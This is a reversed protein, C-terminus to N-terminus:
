SQHFLYITVWAMLSFSNLALHHSHETSFLGNHTCVHVRYGDRGESKLCRHQNTKTLKVWGPMNPFFSEESLVHRWSFVRYAFRNLSQHPFVWGVTPLVVGPCTTRANIIFHAESVSSVTRHNFAGAGKWLIWNWNGAGVHCSAVRQLKLEQSRVVEEPRQLSWANMHHVSLCTHLAGM